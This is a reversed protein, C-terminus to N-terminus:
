WSELDLGRSTRRVKGLHRRGCDLPHQASRLILCKQTARACHLLIVDEQTPGPLWGGLEGTQSRNVNGKKPALMCAVSCPRSLQCGARRGFVYTYSCPEPCTVGTFNAIM